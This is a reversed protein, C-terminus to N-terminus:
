AARLADAVHVRDFRITFVAPNWESLDMLRAALAESLAIEDDLGGRFLVLAFVSPGGEDPDNLRGSKVDVTRIRREALVAFAARLEANALSTIGLEDMTQVIDLTQRPSHKVYPEITTGLSEVFAPAEHLRGTFPQFAM